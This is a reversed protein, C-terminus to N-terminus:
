ALLEPGDNAVNGVGPGVPRVELLDEPAPGLLATLGLLDDNAPDLWEAWAGAPLCVPMRDHVPSVTTNAATTVITASVV